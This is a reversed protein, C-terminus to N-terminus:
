ENERDYYNKCVEGEKYYKMYSQWDGPTATARYCTARKKCDESNACMTIDAM